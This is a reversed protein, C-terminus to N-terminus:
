AGLTEGFLVVAIVQFPYEGLESHLDVVRSSGAMARLRHHLVVAQKVISHSYRNVASPTLGPALMQHLHKWVAGNTAEIFSSGINGEFTRAVLSPIEFVNITTSIACADPTTCILMRPGLPWLDLYFVDPLDYDLKMQTLAAHIYADPRLKQMYEDMLKLHGWFM